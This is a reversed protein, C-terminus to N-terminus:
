RDIKGDAETARDVGAEMKSDKERPRPPPPKMAKRVYKGKGKMRVNLLNILFTKGIEGLEGPM